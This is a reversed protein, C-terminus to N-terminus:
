NKVLHQKMGPRDLYTAFSVQDCGKKNKNKIKERKNNSGQKLINVSWKVQIRKLTLRVQTVKSPIVTLEKLM